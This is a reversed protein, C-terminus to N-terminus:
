RSSEMRISRSCLSDSNQTNQSKQTGGLYALYVHYTSVFYDVHNFLHFLEVQSTRVYPAHTRLRDLYGQQINTFNLVCPGYTRVQWTYMGETGCFDTEDTCDTSLFNNASCSQPEKRRQTLAFIILMFKGDPHLSLLAFRLETIETIETHWRFVRLYM